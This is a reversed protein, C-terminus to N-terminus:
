TGFDGFECWREKWRAESALTDHQWRRVAWVGGTERYELRFGPTLWSFCLILIDVLDVISKPEWDLRWLSLGRLVSVKRRQTLWRYVHYGVSSMWGRWVGRKQRDVSESMTPQGDCATLVGNDLEEEDLEEVDLCPRRLTFRGHNRRRVHVPSHERHSVSRRALWLQLVSTQPSQVRGGYRRVSGRLADAIDLTLSVVLICLIIFPAATIEEDSESIDMSDQQVKICDGSDDSDGGKARAAAVHRPFAQTWLQRVAPSHKSVWAKWGPPLVCFLVRTQLTAGNVASRHYPRRKLFQLCGILHPHVEYQLKLYCVPDDNRMCHSRDQCRGLDISTICVGALRVVVLQLASPPPSSFISVVLSISPRFSWRKRQVRQVALSLSCHCEHSVLSLAKGLRPSIFLVKRHAM